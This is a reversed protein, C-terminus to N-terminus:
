RKLAEAGARHTDRILERLQKRRELTWDDRAIVAAWTWRSRATAAVMASPAGAANTLDIGVQLFTVIPYGDRGSASM